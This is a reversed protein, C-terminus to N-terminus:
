PAVPRVSQGFYRNDSGVTVIDSGILLAFATEAYDEGLSSSWYTGFDCFDRIGISYMLGSAPLFISKTADEKSTFIYGAKGTGGYDDTWGNDTNDILEQFDEPSPICWNGGWIQRAADDEYDYEPDGLYTIGDGVFSLTQALTIFDDWSGVYANRDMIAAKAEDSDENRLYDIFESFTGVFGAEVETNYIPYNYMPGVTSRGDDFTYKTLGKSGDITHDMWSYSRWIYGEEKGKKWTATGDAAISDYYPETEAWAFYDGPDEPNEAGINCTAWKLKSPLGLDVYEHGNYPDEPGETAIFTAYVVVNAGPMEFSYLGETSTATLPVQAESGAAIYYVSEIAYNENPTVVIEVIDSEEYESPTYPLMEVKGNGCDSLLVGYTINGLSFPPVKHVKSREVSVSNDIPFLMYGSPRLLRFLAGSPFSCPPVAMYYTTGKIFYEQGSPPLLNIYELLETCEIIEPSGDMRVSLTGGPIYGSDLDLSRSPAVIRPELAICSVDDYGVKLALLGCINQFSLNKSESVAVSPFNEPDYSGAVATQEGKFTVSFTGDSSVTNGSIAPYIGYLNGSGKPLKGTFTAEAAPSDNKSTFVAPKTGAYGVLISDPVDWFINYTPSEGESVELSSRTSVHTATIETVGPTVSDLSREQTCAALALAAVAIVLLKKM